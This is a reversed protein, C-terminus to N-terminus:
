HEASSHTACPSRAQRRLKFLVCRATIRGRLERQCPLKDAFSFDFRRDVPEALSSGGTKCFRLKSKGLAQKGVCRVIDKLAAFPRAGSGFLSVALCCMKKCHRRGFTEARRLVKLEREIM